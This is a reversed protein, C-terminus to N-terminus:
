IGTAAADNGNIKKKKTNDFRRRHRLLFRFFVSRYSFIIIVLQDVRAHDDAATLKCATAV